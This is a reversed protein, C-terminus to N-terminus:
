ASGSWAFRRILLLAIRRPLGLSGLSQLVAMTDLRRSNGLPYPRMKVRVSESRPLCGVPGCRNISARWGIPQLRLLDLPRRFGIASCVVEFQEAAPEGPKGPRNEPFGQHDSCDFQQNPWLEVAPKSM